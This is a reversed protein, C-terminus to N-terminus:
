VTMVPKGSEDFKFFFGENMAVANLKTVISARAAVTEAAADVSASDKVMKKFFQVYAQKVPDSTVPKKKAGGGSGSAKLQAIAVALSNKKLEDSTAFASTVSATAMAMLEQKRREKMAIEEAALVALVKEIQQKFEYQPRIHGAATLKAYTAEKLRFIAEADQVVHEQLLMDELKNNLIVLIEDEVVNQAALVNKGNEELSESISNGFKKYL